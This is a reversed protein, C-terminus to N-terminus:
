NINSTWTRRYYIMIYVAYSLINESAIIEKEVKLIVFSFISDIWGKKRNKKVFNISVVINAIFLNENWVTYYGSITYMVFTWLALFFLSMRIVQVFLLKHPAGASVNDCKKNLQFFFNQKKNYLSKEVM